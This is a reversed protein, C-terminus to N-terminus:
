KLGYLRRLDAGPAQVEVDKRYQMPTRGVPTTTPINKGLPLAAAAVPQQSGPTRSAAIKAPERDMQGFEVEAAAPDVTPEVTAPPPTDTPSPDKKFQQKIADEAIKRAIKSIQQVMISEDSFHADDLYENFDEKRKFIPEFTVGEGGGSVRFTTDLAGSPLNHTTGLIDGKQTQVVFSCSDGSVIPHSILRGRASIRGVVMGKTVDAIILSENSGESQGPIVAYSTKEEEAVDPKQKGKEKAIDAIDDSISSKLQKFKIDIYKKQDLDLAELLADYGNYKTYM